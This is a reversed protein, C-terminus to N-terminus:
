LASQSLGSSRQDGREKQQGATLPTPGPARRCNEEGKRVWASYRYTGLTKQNTSKNILSSM